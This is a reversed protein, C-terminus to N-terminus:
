KGTTRDVISLLQSLELADLNHFDAFHNLRAIVNEAAEQDVATFTQFPLRLGEVGEKPESFRHDCSKETGHSGLHVTYDKLDVKM